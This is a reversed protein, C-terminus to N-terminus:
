FNIENLHKTPNNIIAAKAQAIIDTLEDYCEAPTASPNEQLYTQLKGYIKNNYAQHNPQNRWAAVPIGNLASDIHFGENGTHKAARQVVPHGTIIDARSIIHHAQRPDGPVLGCAQRFKKSNRAGFDIINDAGKVLFLLGDARKAMKVGAAFWGAVPIASAYSLSANIGDGEITYIIGNAVDAIEGYVPVFGVIDLALHLMEKTAELYVRVTSYEPHELKIQACYLTFYFDFGPSVASNSLDADIYPDIISYFDNDIPNTFYGNTLVETAAQFALLNDADTLDIAVATELFEKAFQKSEVSFNENDLYATIDNYTAQNALAWQQQQPSLESFFTQYLSVLVPQTVITQGEVFSYSPDPQSGGSGSGGGTNGGNNGSGDDNGSGGGSGGSGGSGSGGPGGIANGDCGVYVYSLTSEEIVWTSGGVQCNPNGPEHENGAECRWKGVYNQVAEFCSINILGGGNGSVLPVIQTKSLITETPLKDLEALEVTTFDYKFYYGNYEGDAPRYELVINEIENSTRIDRRTNFTFTHKGDYEAYLAVEDEIYLDPDINEKLRTLEQNVVASNPYNEKNLKKYVIESAPLSKPKVGFQRAEPTVDNNDSSCSFFSLAATGLLVSLLFKKM